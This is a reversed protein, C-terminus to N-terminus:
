SIQANTYYKNFNVFKYLPFFKANSYVIQLARTVTLPEMFSHNFNLLNFCHSEIAYFVTKFQQENVSPFGSRFDANDYIDIISINARPSDIYGANPNFIAYVYEGIGQATNQITDGAIKFGEGAKDLIEGKKVFTYGFYALLGLAVIKIGTLIGM